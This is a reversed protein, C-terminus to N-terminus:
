DCRIIDWKIRNLDFKLWIEDYKIMNVRIKDSKIFNEDCKIM